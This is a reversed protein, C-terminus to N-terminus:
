PSHSFCLSLNRGLTLAEGKKEGEGGGREGAFSSIIVCSATVKDPSTLPFKLFMEM